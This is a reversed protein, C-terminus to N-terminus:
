CAAEDGGRGPRERLETPLRAAETPTLRSRDCYGRRTRCATLNRGQEARALVEAESRSLLSYDCADRGERCNALNRTHVVADVEAVEREDLKSRDGEEWIPL